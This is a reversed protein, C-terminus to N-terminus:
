RKPPRSPLAAKAARVAEDVERARSLPAKAIQKGVSPNMVPFFDTASSDVFKGNTFNQVNRIGNSKTPSSVKRPLAQVTDAM